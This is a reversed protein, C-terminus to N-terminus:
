KSKLIKSNIINIPVYVIYDAKDFEKQPINFDELTLDKSDKDKSSKKLDRTSLIMNNKNIKLIM